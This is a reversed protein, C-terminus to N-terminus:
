FTGQSQYLCPRFFLVDASLHECPQRGLWYICSMGSVGPLGSNFSLTAAMIWRWISQQDMNQEKMMEFLDNVLAYSM